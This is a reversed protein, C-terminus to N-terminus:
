HRFELELERLLGPLEGLTKIIARPQIPLTDDPPFDTRRTIWISYMGTENAGLIDAHLTDGVMAVEEARANVKELAFQFIRQHPKRYGCGASTVIFEFYSELNFKEVLQM